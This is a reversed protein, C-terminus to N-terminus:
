YVLLHLLLFPGPVACDLLGVTGRGPQSSIWLRQAGLTGGQQELLILLFFRRRLNKFPIKRIEPLGIDLERLRADQWLAHLLVLAVVVHVNM